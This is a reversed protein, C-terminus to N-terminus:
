ELDLMRHQVIYDCVLQNYDLDYDYPSFSTLNTEVGNTENINLVLGQSNNTENIFLQDFIQIFQGLIPDDGKFIKLREDEFITHISM